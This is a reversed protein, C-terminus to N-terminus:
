AITLLNKSTQKLQKNVYFYFTLYIELALFVGIFLSVTLANFFLSVIIPVILCALAILIPKKMEPYIRVEALKKLEKIEVVVPLNIYISFHLKFNKYARFISLSKTDNENVLKYEQAIKQKLETAQDLTIKSTTSM